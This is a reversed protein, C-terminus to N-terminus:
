RPVHSTSERMTSAICRRPSRPWFLEAGSSDDMRSIKRALADLRDLADLDGLFQATLRENDVVAEVVGPLRADEAFRAWAGRRASQLNIAAIEGDTAFPCAVDLKITATV